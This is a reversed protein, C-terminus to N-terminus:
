VHCTLSQMQSPRDYIKVFFFCIWIRRGEGYGDWGMDMGGKNSIMTKEYLCKRLSVAATVKEALATKLSLSINTM